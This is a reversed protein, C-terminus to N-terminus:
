VKNDPQVPTDALKQWDIGFYPNPSVASHFYDILTIVDLVLVGQARPSPTGHTM